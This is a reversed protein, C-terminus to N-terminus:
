GYIRSFTGQDKEVPSEEVEHDDDLSAHVCYIKANFPHVLGTLRMLASFDSEDFNTAYLVNRPPYFESADFDKPVALLPVKIKDIM